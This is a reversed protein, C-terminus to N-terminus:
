TSSKNFEAEVQKTTFVFTFIFLVFSALYLLSDSKILNIIQFILLYKMLGLDSFNKLLYKYILFSFLIIGVFGSFILLVLLSSHPLLLGSPEKMPHELYYENLQMPGYGFLFDSISPNYKAIFVGWRESRNIVLSFASIVAVINPVFPINNETTFIDVLMLLSTSLNGGQDNFTLISLINENEFYALNNFYPETNIFVNSSEFAKFLLSKSLSGYSFYSISFIIALISLGLLIFHLYRKNFNFKYRFFMYVTILILSSLAAFNNSRLLGLFIIVLYVFEIQQIREKNKILIIFFLLLSFAYFEGISEASSSLGRWTNGDISQIKDIGKKNLGLTYFSYFNIWPFISSITGLLFLLSGSILFNRKLLNLNLYSISHKLLYLIGHITLFIILIWFLLASVSKTTNAFGRIKDVDFYSGNQNFKIIWILSFGFYIMNFYKYKKYFILNYFGFYSFIILYFNINMDFFTGVFLFMFPFYNIFNTIRPVIHNHILISLFLYILFINILYYNGVSIESSYSEHIYSYFRSESVLQFTFIIPILFLPIINKKIESEDKKLFFTLILIWFITQFFINIHINTGVYIYFKESVLDMGMIKGFCRIDEVNTGVFQINRFNINSTVVKLFSVDCINSQYFGLSDVSISKTTIKQGISSLYWPLITFIVIIPYYYKQKLLQSNM